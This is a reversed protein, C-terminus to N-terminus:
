YQRSDFVNSFNESQLDECFLKPDYNIYNRYKIQKSSHKISLLTRMCGFPENNSLDAPIVKISNIKEPENSYAVDILTKSNNTIRTPSKILQKLGNNSIISKVEKHESRELYNCNMDGMLICEKNESMVTELMENCKKESLHNSPLSTFLVWLFVRLKPSFSRLGFINWITGNWITGGKIPSTKWYM